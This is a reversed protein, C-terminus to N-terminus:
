HSLLLSVLSGITIFWNDFFFKYNEEKPIPQALRLFVNGSAGVDPLEHPQNVRGTYVELNYPIGDSGTLILIKYGWKKPKSPLYQKLRNRRKFPVMQEDITLKESM